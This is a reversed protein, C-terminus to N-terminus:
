HSKPVCLVWLKACLGCFKKTIACVFIFCALQYTKHSEFIGRICSYLNMRANTAYIIKWNASFCICKNLM